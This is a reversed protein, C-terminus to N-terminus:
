LGDTEAHQYDRTIAAMREQFGEDSAAEEYAAYLAARRTRRIKEVVASEVFASLNDAKGANVIERAAELVDARLSLSTRERAAQDRRRRRAAPFPEMLANGSM